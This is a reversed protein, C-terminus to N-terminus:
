KSFIGSGKQGYASSRHSARNIVGKLRKGMAPQQPENNEPKPLSATQNTKESDSQLNLKLISEM